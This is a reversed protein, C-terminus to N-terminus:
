NEIQVWCDKIQCDEDGNPFKVLVGYKNSQTYWCSCKPGEEEEASVPRTSILSAGVIALALVLRLKKM